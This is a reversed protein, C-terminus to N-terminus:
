PCIRFGAKVATGSAFAPVIRWVLGLLGKAQCTKWSNGDPSVSDAILVGGGLGECCGCSTAELTTWSQRGLISAGGFLM